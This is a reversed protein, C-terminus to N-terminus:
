KTQSTIDLMRCLTEDGSSVSHRISSVDAQDGSSVDQPKDFIKWRADSKLERRLTENPSSFM